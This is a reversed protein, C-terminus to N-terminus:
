GLRNRAERAEKRRPNYRLSQDLERRAGAIDQQREYIRGLYYHASALPSGEAAGGSAIYRGLSAAGRDLATGGLAAARGVQYLAEREEPRRELLRDYTAIAEAYRKGRQQFAGLAYYPAASDPAAAIAAAYAREADADRDAAEAIAGEAVRGRVPDLRAIAEGQERARRESGGMFGPAVVYYRLLELRADVSAPALSVARELAGRMRRAITMRRRLGADIAERAYARGLWVQYAASDAAGAVAQELQRVAEVANGEILALRGLYYAREPADGDGRQLATRLAAWDGAAFLAAPSQAGLSTGVVLAAAFAVFLSRAHWM